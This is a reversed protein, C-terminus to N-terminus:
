VRSIALGPLRIILRNLSNNMPTVAVPPITLRRQASLALSNHLHQPPYLPQIVHHQLSRPPLQPYTNAAIMTKMGEYDNKDAKMPKFNPDIFSFEERARTVNHTHKDFTKRKGLHTRVVQRLYRWCLSIKANWMVKPM